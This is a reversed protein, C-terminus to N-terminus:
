RPSASPRSSSPRVGHRKEAALLMAVAEQLGSAVAELSYTWTREVYQNEWAHSGSALQEHDAGILSAKINTSGFEIGLVAQGAAICDRAASETPVVAM